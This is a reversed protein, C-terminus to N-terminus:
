SMARASTSSRLARGSEGLSSAVLAKSAVLTSPSSSPTLGVASLPVYQVVVGVIVCGNGATPMLIRHSDNGSKYLPLGALKGIVSSTKLIDKEVEICPRASPFVQVTTADCGTASPSAFILAAARPAVSSPYAEMAISQFLHLNPAGPYWTSYASHPAAIANASAREVASLCPGFGANKAHQVPEPQQGDSLKGVDPNSYIGSNPASAAPQKTAGPPPAKRGSKNAADKAPAPSSPATPAAAAPKTEGQQSQAFRQPLDARVVSVSALAGILLFVGVALCRRLQQHSARIRM